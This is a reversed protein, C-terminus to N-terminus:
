PLSTTPPRYNILKWLFNSIIVNPKGFRQKLENKADKYLHGSCAFGEIATKANGIVIGQLYTVKQGDSLHTEGIMFSFRSHWDAWKNLNGNLIQLDM